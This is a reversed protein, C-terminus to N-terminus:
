HKFSKLLDLLSMMQQIAVKIDDLEGGDEVKWCSSLAYDLFCSTAITRRSEGLARAFSDICESMHQLDGIGGFWKWENLLFRGAELCQEGIRGQPDIVKWNGSADMLINEHHLDGHLLVKSMFCALM